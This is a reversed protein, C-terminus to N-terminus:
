QKGFIACAYYKITGTKAKAFGFGVRNYKTRDKDFFPKYHTTSSSWLLAFHSGLYKTDPITDLATVEFHARKNWGYFKLRQKASSRNPFPKGKLFESVKHGPRGKDGKAMVEAFWQCAKTLREDLEVMPLNNGKRLINTSELFSNTAESNSVGNVIYTSIFPKIVFEDLFKKTGKEYVHYVNNAFSNTEFQKGPSVMIAKQEKCNEDVRRVEIDKATGNRIYMLRSRGGKSCNRLRYSTKSNLIILEDLLKDSGKKYVRYVDGAKSDLKLDTGHSIDNGTEEKCDSNVKRIEIDRYLFNEIAIATSVGSNKSCNEVKYITKSAELTVESILRNTGKEYVRFVNNVSSNGGVQEGPKLFRGRTENCNTLVLRVEIDNNTANHFVFRTPAGSKSCKNQGYTEASVGFASIVAFLIAWYLTYLKFLGIKMKMERLSCKEDRVESSNDINM